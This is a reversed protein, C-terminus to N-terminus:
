LAITLGRLKRSSMWGSRQSFAIILTSKARGRPYRKQVLRMATAEGRSPPLSARRRVSRMSRMSSGARSLLTRSTPSPSPMSARRRAPRSAMRTVQSSGPLAPPAATLDGKGASPYARMTPSGDEGGKRSAAEVGDRRLEGQVPHLVRRRRQAGPIRHKLSPPVNARAARLPRKLPGSCLGEDRGRRVKVGAASLSRTSSAPKAVPSTEM